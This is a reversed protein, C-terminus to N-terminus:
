FSLRKLIRLEVRLPNPAIADSGPSREHAERSPARRTMGFANTILSGAIHALSSAVLSSLCFSPNSRRVQRRNKEQTDHEKICKIHCM